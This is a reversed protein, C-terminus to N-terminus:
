TEPFANKDSSFAYHLDPVKVDDIAIGVVPIMADVRNDDDTNDDYVLNHHASLHHTFQSEGNRRSTNGFVVVTGRQIAAARAYVSAANEISDSEIRFYGAERTAVAVIRREVKQMDVRHNRWNEPKDRAHAINGEAISGLNLTVRAGVPVSEMDIGNTLFDRELQQQSIEAKLKGVKARELEQREAILENLVENKFEHLLENRVLEEFKQRANHRVRELERSFEYSSELRSKTQAVTTERDAEVEAVAQERMGERVAEDWEAQLEKRVQARIEAGETTGSLEEVMSALTHAKAAESGM